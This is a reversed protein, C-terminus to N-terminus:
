SSQLDVSEKGADGLLSRCRVSFSM